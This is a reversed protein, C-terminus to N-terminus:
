KIKNLRMKDECDRSTTSLNNHLFWSMPFSEYKMDRLLVTVAPGQLLVWIQQDQVKVWPKSRLKM